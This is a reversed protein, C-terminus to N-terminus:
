QNARPRPWEIKDNSRVWPGNTVSQGVQHQDRWGIVKDNAYEFEISEVSHACSPYSIAYLHSDGGLLKVLKTKPMGIVKYTRLFNAFQWGRNLGGTRDSPHKFEESDFHNDTEWRLFRDGPGPYQKAVQSPSAEQPALPNGARDFDQSRSTKTDPKYVGTHIRNDSATSISSVEEPFSFLVKGNTDIAIFQGDPTTRAAYMGPFLPKLDFFNPPLKFNFQRDILGLRREPVEGIGVIAMGNQFDQATRYEPSIIKGTKDIYAYHKGDATRVIATGDPNFDHALSFQPKIVVSGNRAMYGFLTSAGGKQFQWFPVLENNAEGLIHSQEPTALRDGTAADLVFALTEPYDESGTYVPLFGGNSPGISYYSPELIQQGTPSALGFGQLGRIKLLADQPLAKALGAQQDFGQPLIVDVISCDSPLDFTLEKGDHDVIHGVYFPPTSFTHDAQALFFLGHGLYRASQYECPVIIKGARNVIGVKGHAQASSGHLALLLAVCM